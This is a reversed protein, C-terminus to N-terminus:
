EMSMGFHSHNTLVSLGRVLRSQQYAAPADAVNQPRMVGQSPSRQKIEAILGFGASLSDRLSQVPPADRIMRQLESLPRQQRAAALERKVDELIEALITDGVAIM